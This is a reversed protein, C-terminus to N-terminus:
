YPENGGRKSEVVKDEVVYVPCRGCSKNPDSRRNWSQARSMLVLGVRRPTRTRAATQLRPTIVPMNLRLCALCRVCEWVAGMLNGWSRLERGTLDLVVNNPANITMTNRQYEYMYLLVQLISTPNVDTAAMAKLFVYEPANMYSVKRGLTRGNSAIEANSLM